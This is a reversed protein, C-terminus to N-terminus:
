MFGLTIIVSLGIRIEFPTLDLGVFVKHYEVNEILYLLGLSIAFTERKLEAFVNATHRSSVLRPM